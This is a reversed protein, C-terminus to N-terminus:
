SAAGAAIQAAQADVRAIDFRAVAEEFMAMTYEGGNAQAALVGTMLSAAASVAAGAPTGAALTPVLVQAMAVGAALMATQEPTMKADSM